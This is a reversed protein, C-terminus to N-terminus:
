LAPKERPNSMKEVEELTVVLQIRQSTITSVWDDPLPVPWTTLATPRRVVFRGVRGTARDFIVQDLTGIAQDMAEVRTEGGVAVLHGAAQEESEAPQGTAAVKSGPRASEDAAQPPKGKEAVSEPAPKALLSVLSAPGRYDPLCAAEAVTLDLSIARSDSPGLYEPMVAVDRGLSGDGVVLAVVANCRRDIVVEKLRGIEMGDATIVKAGVDLRL